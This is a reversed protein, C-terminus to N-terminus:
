AAAELREVRGSRGDFEVLDGDRLWATLGGVAVVSPIGLERSVIAAHSLVSGREVLIGAAAPFLVIWGPDTREAVLIEGREFRSQPDSVIRVRGRVVGPCCGIGTRIAGGAAAERDRAAPANPGIAIFRAPPAPADEYAAYRARREAVIAGLDSSADRIAAWVDDLELWFVDRPDAIRGAAHLRRGIEAFIRRVRGFVRTREYRLNERDRVRKRAQGLAFGIVLRRWPRRAVVVAVDREARTRVAQPGSREPVAVPAGAALRAIARFLPGPDDDLTRTELKLESQCRDGFAELYAAIGARAASRSALAADAAPADGSALARLLAEDGRCLRALEGIRQAPEASIMGGAGCLLGNHLSGDADACWRVLLRGLVGYWVMAFFDNALPTEWASMLCRELRVFEAQLEGLTLTELLPNAALTRAICAHFRVIAADLTVHRRGLAVLTAVVAFVDRARSSREIAAVTQAPLAEGVGMMTEMFRRNLRFGPVLALLRYWNLLHYYMRGDILGLMNDLEGAHAAITREPIALVRLFQRYAGAYAYRAFSFTLPLVIGGYSEAINSNDWLTGPPTTVPRAQLLYLTRGAIAWEVDQASGFCTGVARVAADIERLAGDDLAARDAAQPLVAAPAVGCLTAARRHADTKHAIRREIAGHTDIWYTDTDCDGGVIGTGIGYACAIVIRESGDVPDRGFAVGSVEADVMVQVIAAPPAAADVAKAKAYAGVRASDAGCRIRTVRDAVDAPAVFLFTEFMGAFSAATGDEAPASSRVAFRAAPDNPALAASRAALAAPASEDGPAVVFFPPVRFGARALRALSEAKGSM